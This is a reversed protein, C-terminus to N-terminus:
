EQKSREEEYYDQDVSLHNWIKILDEVIDTKVIFFDCSQCIISTFPKESAKTHSSGCVPCAGVKIPESM